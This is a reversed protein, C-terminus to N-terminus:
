YTYASGGDSDDGSEESDDAPPAVPKSIKPLCTLNKTGDPKVVFWKGGVNQGSWKGPTKDGIYRYVPWNGVTVQTTGDKRTITGVEDADVGKLKPKGKEVLVPPWVKACDDNCNSEVEPKVEDGDFRYLVWGNQDQVTEGMRKVTVATLKTTIQDDKLKPTEDKPADEAALDDSAEAPDATPAAAPVENAAPEANGGYDAAIAGGVVMLTRKEPVV